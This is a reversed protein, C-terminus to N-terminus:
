KLQELNKRPTEGQGAEAAKEFWEIAEEERELMMCCVGISNWARADNGYPELMKLAEAYRGERIAANAANVADAGRDDLVDYYLAIYSANRLEPYYHRLMYAYPRGGDLQRLARKRAEGSERDIIDLVKQRGPMDSAAVTRRLGEWNEVGNILEFDEDALEPARSRIYDRLAKVRGEGLSANFAESGEPSAFGTIEVGHLRLTDIGEIKRIGAIIKDLAAQNGYETLLLETKSVPFIVKIEERDFAWRRRADVVEFQAPEASADSLYPTPAVYVRINEAVVKNGDYCDCGCGITRCAIGLSATRMWREYPVAAFYRYPTGEMMQRSSLAWRPNGALAQEQRERRYRIKGFVEAPPLRLTDTGRYLYPTLEMKYRNKLTEPTTKLDFRVEVDGQRRRVSEGSVYINQAPLSLPWVATFLLLKLGDKM